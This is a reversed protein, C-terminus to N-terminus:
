RTLAAKTSELTTSLSTKPMSTAIPKIIWSLMFPIGRSLSISRCEAYVGGDIQRLRWYANMRWLFGHGKNPPRETEEPTEPNKVEAIRTSHSIGIWRAPDLQKYDAEHETNLVVTMVKVKKFRLFGKVSHGQKSITRSDVVENYISTHRDYDELLQVVEEVNTGPIFITGIWDHVLGGEVGEITVKEIEIQGQRVKDRLKPDADISLFVDPGVLRDEMAGEAKIVYEQFQKLTVPQLEVIFAEGRAAQLCCALAATAILLFRDYPPKGALNPQRSRRSKFTM